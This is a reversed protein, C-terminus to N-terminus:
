VLLRTLLKAPKTDQALIWSARIAYFNLPYHTKDKTKLVSTIRPIEKENDTIVLATTIQGRHYLAFDVTFNSPGTVTYHKRVDDSLTEFLYNEKFAPYNPNTGDGGGGGSCIVPPLYIYGNSTPSRSTEIWERLRNHAAQYSM